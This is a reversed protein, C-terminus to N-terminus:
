YRASKFIPDSYRCVTTTALLFFLFSQMENKKLGISTLISDVIEVMLLFLSVFLMDVEALSGAVTESMTEAM